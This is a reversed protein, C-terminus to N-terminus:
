SDTQSFTVTVALGTDCGSDRFNEWPATGDEDTWGLRALLPIERDPEIRSEGTRESYSYLGSSDTGDLPCPISYRTAGDEELAIYEAQDGSLRVGFRAQQAAPGTFLCTQEWVGAQCVWLDVTMDLSSGDLRYEWLTLEHDTLELVQRTEDSVPAARLCLPDLSSSSCGCLLAFAVLCCLLSLAKKM